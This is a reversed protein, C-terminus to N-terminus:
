YAKFNIVGATVGIAFILFICVLLIVILLSPGKDEEIIEEVYNDWITINFLNDSISM